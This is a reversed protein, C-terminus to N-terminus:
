TTNIIYRIPKPPATSGIISNIAPSSWGYPSTFESCRLGVCPTLPAPAAIAASLQRITDLVRDAAQSSGSDVLLVGDRGISATINAGAGVIMYINGSVPLVHISDGSPNPNQPAVTGGFFRASCVLCLGVFVLSLFSKNSFNM